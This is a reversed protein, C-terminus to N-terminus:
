DHAAVLKRHKGEEVRVVCAGPEHDLVFRWGEALARDLMAVRTTMNTYAEVDYGMSFAAGVHNVTPMVDGAFCLPGHGDDWRIIQHGWTHGPALDVHIGPLVEATGSVLDVLHAVPALHSQLYTRTMVSKNAAADDWETRQVHITADPFSPVPDGDAGLHTLGAAHDFHLHSLVVHNIGGPEVGHEALADVVTRRELDYYGREKDSWKDGFGTEVLVRQAGDELLVCNTQLPIRNSDDPETMRSWLGKPVVGFMGGGALRMAGARLITTKWVHAM